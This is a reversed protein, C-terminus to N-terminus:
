AKTSPTDVASKQQVATLKSLWHDSANEILDVVHSFGNPGGYYPDPVDSGDPLFLSLNAKANPPQIDKLDSLNSADMALIFDDTAPFASLPEANPTLDIPAPAPEGMAALFPDEQPQEDFPSVTPGLGDDYPYAM